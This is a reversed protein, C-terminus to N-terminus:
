DNKSGKKLAVIAAFTAERAEENNIKSDLTGYINILNLFHEQKKLALAITEPKEKLVSFFSQKNEIFYGLINSTALAEQIVGEVAIREPHSNQSGYEIKKIAVYKVKHFELIDLFNYRIYKLFDPFSLFSPRKYCKLIFNKNYPEYIVYTIQSPSVRIGLTNM